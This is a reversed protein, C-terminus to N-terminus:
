LAARSRSLRQSPWRVYGHQEVCTVPLVAADERGQFAALLAACFDVSAAHLVSALM